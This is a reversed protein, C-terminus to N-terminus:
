SIHHQIRFMHFHLHNWCCLIPVDSSGSARYSNHSCHYTLRRTSNWSCTCIPTSLQCETSTCTCVQGSVKMIKMRTTTFNQLKWIWLPLVARLQAKFNFFCLITPFIKTNFIKCRQVKIKFNKCM